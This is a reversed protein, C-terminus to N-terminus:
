KRGGRTQIKLSLVEGNRLNYYGLTETNKLFAGSVTALKQKGAPFGPVLAAIQDKLQSVTTQLPLSPITHTQNNPDQIQLSIPHPNSVIFTAEPILHSDSDIKTRKPDHVESDDDRPRGPPPPPAAASPFGPPRPASGPPPPPPPGGPYGGASLGPPPPPPFSSPGTGPPGPIGMPYAVPYAIPAPIGPASMGPPAGLAPPPVLIGPPAAFSPPQPVFPRHQPVSIPVNPGQQGPLQPGVKASEQAAPQPNMLSEYQADLAALQVKQTTAGISTSHGDWVVKEKANKAEEEALKRALSIEDGSSGFIDTRYDSLKTLNKAVDVQNLNTDRKKADRAQQQERWKKDLLEIRMHEAMESVKIAQGCVQCLQTPENTSSSSKGVKPNYNARIKIDKSTTTPIMRPIITPKPTVTASAEGDDDDDEMDMQHDNDDDDQTPPPPPAIVRSHPPPPPLSSLGTPKPPLTSAAAATSVINSGLLRSKDVLSLSALEQVSIPLAFDTGVGDEDGELFEITDVVVFDHWDVEAFARKEAEAELDREQKLKRALARQEARQEAIKLLPQKSAVYDHLQQLQSKIPMLVKTYQAVYTNFLPHLSHNQRLFDFQPNRAERSALQTLFARGNRAVFQATLKVVDLDQASIAPMEYLFDFDKIKVAAEKAELQQQQQVQENKEKEKTQVEKEKEHTTQANPNAGFEKVRNKYYKHYPDLPNLFGFKPDSRNQDRLREEFQLGNASKAIFKATKDAIERIGPPPIIEKEEEKEVM